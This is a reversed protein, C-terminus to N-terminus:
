KDFWLTPKTGKPDFGYKHCVQITHWVDAVSISGPYPPKDHLIGLLVEMGKISEDELTIVETRRWCGKLSTRFHNSGQTLVSEKVHFLASRPRPEPNQDSSVNGKHAKTEEVVKITLDSLSALSIEMSFGSDLAHYIPSLGRPLHFPCLSSAIFRLLSVQTDPVPSGCYPFSKLSSVSGLGPVPCFSVTGPYILFPFSPFLFSPSSVSCCEHAPLPSVNLYRPLSAAFHSFNPSLCFCVLLLCSICSDPYNQRSLSALMM